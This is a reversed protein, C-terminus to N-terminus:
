PTANPDGRFPPPSGMHEPKPYSAEWKAQNFKGALYTALMPVPDARDAQTRRKPDVSLMKLYDAWLHKPMVRIWVTFARQLQEPTVTIRDPSDSM